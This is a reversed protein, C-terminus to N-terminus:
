RKFEEPWALHARPAISVVIEDTYGPIDFFFCPRRADFSWEYRGPMWGIATLLYLGAGAPVPQGVLFHRRGGADEGLVLPAGAVRAARSDTMRLRAAARQLELRLQQVEDALSRGAAVLGPITVDMPDREAGRIVNSADDPHMRPPQHAGSSREATSPM